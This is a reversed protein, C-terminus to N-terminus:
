NEKSKDNEVGFIFSGATEAQRVAESFDGPKFDKIHQKWSQVYGASKRICETTDLHLRGLCLCAGIDAVVEEQAYKSDGWCDFKIRKLRAPHGTSHILENATPHTGM